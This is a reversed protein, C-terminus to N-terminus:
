THIYTYIYMYKNICIMFLNNLNGLLHKFHWVSQSQEYPHKHTHTNTNTAQMFYTNQTNYSHNEFNTLFKYLLLLILRVCEYVRFLVVIDHLVVFYMEILNRTYVCLCVCVCAYTFVWIITSLLCINWLPTM